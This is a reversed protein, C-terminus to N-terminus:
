TTILVLWSLVFYFFYIPYVALAKRKDLNIDSLFGGSAYISWGFGVAIFGMKLFARLRPGFPLLLMTLFAALVIPCICYGLVCVSQFFSLRGGLLKSNITVIAAGAWVIAFSYTFVLDSQNSAAFSLRRNKRIFKEFLM